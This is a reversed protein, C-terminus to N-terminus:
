RWFKIIFNASVVMTFGVWTPLAPCERLVIITSLIRLAITTSSWVVMGGLLNDSLKNANYVGWSTTIGIFPTLWWVDHFSGVKRTLSEFTVAGCASLFIWLYGWM